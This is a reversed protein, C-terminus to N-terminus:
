AFKRGTGPLMAAKEEGKKVLGVASDQMKKLQIVKGVGNLHQSTKGSASCGREM